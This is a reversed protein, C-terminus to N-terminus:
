WKMINITNNGLLIIASFVLILFGGLVIATEGEDLYEEEIKNIENREITTEVQVATYGELKEEGMDGIFNGNEYRWNKPEIIKNNNTYIKIHSNPEPTEAIRWSYCGFLQLLLCPTLIASIYRKM